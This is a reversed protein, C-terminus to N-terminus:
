GTEHPNPPTGILQSSEAAMGYKLLLSTMDRRNLLKINVQPYQQKLTRIKRNKDTILDQRRTTLEVYM